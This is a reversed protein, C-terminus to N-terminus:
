GQSSKSLENIQKQLVALDSEVADILQEAEKVFGKELYSGASVARLRILKIRSIISETKM